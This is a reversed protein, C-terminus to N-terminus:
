RAIPRRTAITAIRGAPSRRDWVGAFCPVVSGEARVDVPRAPVAPARVEVRDAGERSRVDAAVAVEWESVVLPVAGRAGVRDRDTAGAFTVGVVTGAVDTGVVVTGTVMTGAVVTGAVVKGSAVTGAVVTASADHFPEKLKGSSTAVVYPNV